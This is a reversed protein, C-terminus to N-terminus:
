KPKLTSEASPLIERSARESDLAAKKLVCKRCLSADAIRLVLRKHKNCGACKGHENILRQKVSPGILEIDKSLLVGPPKGGFRLAANIERRVLGTFAQRM